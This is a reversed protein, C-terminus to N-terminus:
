LDLAKRVREAAEDFVYTKVGYGCESCVSRDGPNIKQNGIPEFDDSKIFGEPEIDRVAKVFPAGCQCYVVTGKPFRAM